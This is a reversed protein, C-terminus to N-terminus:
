KKAFSGNDFDFIVSNGEVKDNGYYMQVELLDLGLDSEMKGSPPLFRLYFDSSLDDNVAFKVEKDIEFDYFSMEGECGKYLWKGGDWLYNSSFNQSFFKLGYGDVNHEFFVGYCFPEAEKEDIVEGGSDIVGQIEALRSGSVDGYITKTRLSAVQSLFNDRSLSLVASKRYQLYGNVAMTSLLAVIAMVIILEILTFGKRM